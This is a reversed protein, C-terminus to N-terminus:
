ALLGQKIGKFIHYSLHKQGLRNILGWESSSLTHWFMKEIKNEKAWQYAHLLFGAQTEESVVEHHFIKAIKGDAPTMKAGCEVIYLPKKIHYKAMVEKIKRIGVVFNKPGGYGYCYLDLPIFDCYEGLDLELMRDFNELKSLPKGDEVVTPFSGNLTASVLSSLGVSCTSDVKKMEVYAYKIMKAYTDMDSAWQIIRPSERPWNNDAEGLLVWERGPFRRVLAACFKGYYEITRPPYATPKFKCDKPNVGSAWIPTHLIVRISKLRYEEELKFENDYQTWYYSDPAQHVNCWEITSYFSSCGLEKISLLSDKTVLWNTVGLECM